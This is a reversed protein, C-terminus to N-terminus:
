FDLGFCQFLFVKVLYRVGLITSNLADVLKAIYLSFLLPSLSCGQKVGMTFFLPDTFLPDTLGHFLNIRVCDNFYMSRILSVVKSGFSISQLKTYLLEQCFSNYANALDCYM